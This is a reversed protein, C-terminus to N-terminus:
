GKRKRGAAALQQFRKKGFKRRGIVSALAAANRIKGGGPRSAAAKRGRATAGVKRSKLGKVLAAFRAGTGLAAKAM